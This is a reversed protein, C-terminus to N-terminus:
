THVEGLHRPHCLCVDAKFLAIVSEEKLREVEERALKNQVRSEVVAFALAELDRWDVNFARDIAASHM